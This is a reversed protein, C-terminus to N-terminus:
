PRDARGTKYQDLIQHLATLYAQRLSTPAIVKVQAGLSLLYQVMYAQESPAYKGTLWDQDAHYDLHMNPYRNKQVEERGLPTLQCRFPITYHADQYRQFAQPLDSSTFPAVRDTPTLAQIADCRYIGWSQEALHYGSFFWIGHRFLLDYLQFDGTYPTINLTLHVVQPKLIAPLLDPLFNPRDLNTVTYYHVVQQLRNVTQQEQHPLTAMLKDYITRYSQDFPTVALLRLAKIAFFLANVEQLNFTVPIWLRRHILQYGGYRGPEVYFALGLQELAAIDRLATRKSIQFKTMLDALHFQTQNSLFILEQNLRESRTM